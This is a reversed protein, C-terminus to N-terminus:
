TNKKNICSYRSKQSMMVIAQDFSAAPIITIHSKNYQQNIMEIMKLGILKSIGNGRM